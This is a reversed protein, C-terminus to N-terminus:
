FTIRSTFVLAHNFSYYQSIAIQEGIGVLLALRNKPDHVFKFKSVMMGPTAFAQIRGDNSGGHYFTTNFEVQPWFLKGIKYQFSTNWSVPRGMTQTHGTPLSAAISSQIALPGFGKGLYVTPSVTGDTAGNKYSGTPATAAVGVSMAYDHHKANGALLRYKLLFSMDGAGDMAQPSNHVIYPPLNIDLETKYWPIFNFGKSNGYNWTTTHTSTYQRVVDFRALQVLGSSATVVPVPWSPQQDYTARVRDEWATFFKEQALTPYCSLLAIMASGSLIRRMM